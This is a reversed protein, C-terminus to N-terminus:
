EAEYILGDGADNLRVRKVVNDAANHLIVGHGLFDWNGAIIETTKTGADTVNDTAGSIVNNMLVAGTTGAGINIATTIVGPAVMLIVNGQITPSSIGGAGALNIANTIVQNDSPATQQGIYNNRITLGRIPNTANNIHIANSVTAGGGLQIRNGSIDISNGSWGAPNSILIGVGSTVTNVWLIENGVINAVEVATGVDVIATAYYSYFYNGFINLTTSLNSQNAAIHNGNINKFRNGTINVVKSNELWIGADTAAGSGVNNFINNQDVDLNEAWAARIGQKL